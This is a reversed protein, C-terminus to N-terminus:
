REGRMVGVWSLGRGDRRYAARLGNFAKQWEERSLQPEQDATILWTVLGTAAETAEAEDDTWAEHEVSYWRGQHYLLLLSSLWGCASGDPFPLNVALDGDPLPTCPCDMPPPLLHWGAATLAPPASVARTQAFYHPAAAAPLLYPIPEAMGPPVLAQLAPPLRDHAQQWAQANPNMTPTSPPAPLQEALELWLSLYLDLLQLGTRQEPSGDGSTEGGLYKLAHHTTRRGDAQPRGQKEQPLLARSLRDQLTLELRLPGHQKDTSLPAHRGNASYRPWSGLLLQEPTAGQHQLWDLAAFAVTLGWAHGWALVSAFDAPKYPAFSIVSSAGLQQALIDAIRTFFEGAEPTHGWPPLDKKGKDKRQLFPMLSAPNQAVTDLGRRRFDPGFLAPKDQLLHYIRLRLWALRAKQARIAAAKAARRAAPHEEVSRYVGSYLSEVIPIILVAPVLGASIAEEIGETEAELERLRQEIRHPDM